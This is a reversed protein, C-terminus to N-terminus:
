ICTQSCKKIVTLPTYTGVKVM